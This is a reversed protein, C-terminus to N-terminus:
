RLSQQWYTTNTKQNIFLIQQPAISFRAERKGDGQGMQVKFRLKFFVDGEDAKAAKAVDRGVRWRFSPTFKLYISSTRYGMKVSDALAVYPNNPVDTLISPINYPADLVTPCTVAYIENDADYHVLSARVLVGLVRQDFKKDKVYKMINALYRQRAQVIRKAFEATTEFELRERITKKYNDTEEKLFTWAEKLIASFESPSLNDESLPSAATQQSRSPSPLLMLAACISTLWLLGKRTTRM